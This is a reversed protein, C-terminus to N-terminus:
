GPRRAAAARRRELRGGSFGAALQQASSGTGDRSRRVARAGGRCSQPGTGGDARRSVGPDAGRLAARRHPLARGRREGRSRGRATTPGSGPAVGALAPLCEPVASGSNGPVPMTRVYTRGHLPQLIGQGPPTAAICRGAYFYFDYFDLSLSKGGVWSARGLAAYSSGILSGM